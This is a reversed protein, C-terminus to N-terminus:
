ECIEICCNACDAWPGPGARGMSCPAAADCCVGAVGCLGSSAGCSPNCSNDFHPTNPVCEEGRCVKCDARRGCYSGAECTDGETDRSCGRSEGEVASIECAGRRCRWSTRTRTEIGDQACDDAFGGCSSWDTFSDDRCTAGETPRSCSETNTTMDYFCMGDTCRPTTITQSRTGSESCGDAFGGCAGFPGVTMAGCDANVTCVGIDPRYADFGADSGGDSTGADFPTGADVTRICVPPRATETSCADECVGEVCTTLPDCAMGACDASFYLTVRVLENEVFGGHYRVTNSPGTGVTQAHFSFTRSADGGIPAIPFHLPWRQMDRTSIMRTSSSGEAQTITVAVHTTATRVASDADLDVIVQTPTSPACAAVLVLALTGGRLVV